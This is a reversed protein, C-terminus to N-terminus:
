LNVSSSSMTSSYLLSMSGDVLVPYRVILGLSAILLLVVRGKQVSHVHQVVVVGVGGVVVVAM